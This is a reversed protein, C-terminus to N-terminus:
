GFLGRLGAYVIVGIMTAVGINRTKLLAAVTALLGFGYIAFDSASSALALDPLLTLVTLGGLLAPGLVNLAPSDGSFYRLVRSDEPLLFPLLRLSFTVVAMIVIALMLTSVSLNM